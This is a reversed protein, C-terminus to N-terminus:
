FETNALAMFLLITGAVTLGLAIRGAIRFTKRDEPAIDFLPQLPRGTVCTWIRRGAAVTCSIVYAIAGWVILTAIGTM